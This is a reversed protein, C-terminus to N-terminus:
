KQHIFRLNIQPIRPTSIFVLLLSNLVFPSSGLCAQYYVIESSWLYGAAYEIGVWLSIWIAALRIM